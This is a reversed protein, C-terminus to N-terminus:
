ALDGAFQCGLMQSLVVSQCNHREDVPTLHGGLLRPCSLLDFLGVPPLLFLCGLGSLRAVAM